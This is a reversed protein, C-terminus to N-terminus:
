DPLPAGLSFAVFPLLESPKDFVREGSPSRPSSALGTYYALPARIDAERLLRPLELGATEPEPPTRGIDSLVLDYATAGAYALAEANSAATDVEVGQARLAQIELRNNAPQDDVWLIRGGSIQGLAPRVEEPEPNRPEKQRIAEEYIVWAVGDRGVSVSRTRRILSRVEEPFRILLVIGVVFAFGFVVGTAWVLEM